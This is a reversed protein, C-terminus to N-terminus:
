ALIDNLTNFGSNAKTLVVVHDGVEITSDGCPIIVEKDRVILAIITNKKLSFATDKFCVNKKSFDEYAIFEIAEAAGDAIRYMCHIDNGEENPVTINRIFGIINQVSIVASSIAEGMDVKKLLSEYSPNTIQTIVSKIGCSWAFMSIVLNMDDKDMLSICADASQIGEEELVEVNIEEAYSVSVQPFANSLAICRERDNDLVSIKKKQELLHETLYYTVDGGGIILVKKVTKRMIGLKTMVRVLSKRPVVLEVVDNQKLEFSGDPVTVKGGRKVLGVLVDAGVNSRFQMLSTNKLSSEENVCVKLLATGKSFFGDAAVSGPLSLTQMVSVALDEKPNIVYDIQFQNTFFGKDLALDPNNMRAVAFRTGCSKAVMCIVLNIEDSTTLAVIVDATEAGAKKMVDYSVANGCVGSVNYKDTMEELKEKSDDIVIIDHKERSLLDALLVGSQGLGAILVRM